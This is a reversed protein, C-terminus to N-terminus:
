SPREAHALHTLVHADFRILAEGETHQPASVWECAPCWSYFYTDYRRVDAPRTVFTMAQPAVDKLEM